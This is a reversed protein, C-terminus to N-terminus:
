DIEIQELKISNELSYDGIRHRVLQRVFGVTGLSNALDRALSRMYTGKSCIVEIALKNHTFDKIQIKKINVRRLELTVTKGNRALEYARKGDVHLASYSPPRQKIDGIFEEIVSELDKTTIVPVPKQDVVNGTLDLTDTELGFEVLARYGKELEMLTPVKKTAEGLCLLLIGRAFPDLTGAHGVKFRCRRKIFRIVDNSTWGAPKDVAVIQGAALAVKTWPRRTHSLTM